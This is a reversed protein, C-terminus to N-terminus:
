NKVIVENIMACKAIAIHCAAQPAGAGGRSPLSKSTQPHM